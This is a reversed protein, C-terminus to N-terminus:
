IEMLIRRDDERKKAEEELGIKMAEFELKLVAVDGGIHSMTNSMDQMLIRTCSSHDMSDQTLKHTADLSAGQAQVKESIDSVDSILVGMRAEM